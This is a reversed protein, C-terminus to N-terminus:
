ERRTRSGHLSYGPCWFTEELLEQQADSSLGAWWAEATKSLDFGEAREEFKYRVAEIVEAQCMAQSDAAELCEQSCVEWVKLLTQKVEDCEIM